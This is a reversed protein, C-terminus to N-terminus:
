RRRRSSSSRAAWPRGRSARHGRGAGRESPWRARTSRRAWTVSCPRRRPRHEHGDEGEAVRVAVGRVRPWRRELNRVGAERTYHEILSTYADDTFDLQETSATSTSSSPASTSGRSTSRENRTYGPIEIVEMRDLLPAPITDATTPRASSCRTRCTTRSTSTTTSSPATRSPTSCRSCPRPPTAASTTGMKDVEDLIIIPNITGAKKMAQVIRGPLAGVYTRRHGRIAPRTACAASPSACWESARRGPSPRGLSTKGVGPPGLFCLIPGKPGEQAQARRPVRPHAEQAKKLGYHDEDLARRVAEVDFKDDTSKNWPIDVLWELYTRTVQYEASHGQM